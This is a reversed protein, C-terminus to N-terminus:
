AVIPVCASKFPWDLAVQDYDSEYFVSTSEPKNIVRTGQRQRQDGSLWLSSQRLARREPIWLQFSYGHLV